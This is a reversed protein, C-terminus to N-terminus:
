DELRQAASVAARLEEPRRTSVLWYPTADAADTVDWRVMEPIWARLCVYARADLDPGLAGPRAAPGIGAGDGLLSVLIHARGARLEDAGVEVVPASAITVVVSVALVVAGAAFALTQNVPLLALATVVGAGAAIAWGLAGPWLRERYVATHTSSVDTM